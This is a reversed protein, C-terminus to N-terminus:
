IEINDLKFGRRYMYEKRKQEDYDKLKSSILKGIVRKEYDEPLDAEFIM